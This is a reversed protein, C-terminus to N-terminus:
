REVACVRKPIKFGKWKTKLPLLTSVKVFIASCKTIQAQMTFPIVKNGKDVM